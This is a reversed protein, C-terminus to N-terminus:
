QDTLADTSGLADYHYYNTETDEHRSILNGFEQQEYHYDLQPSGGVSVSTM